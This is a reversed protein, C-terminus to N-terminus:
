KSLHSIVIPLNLLIEHVSVALKSLYIAIHFIHPLPIEGCIVHPRSTSLYLFLLSTCKWSWDEDELLTFLLFWLRVETYGAVLHSGINTFSQLNSTFFSIFYFLPSKPFTRWEHHM